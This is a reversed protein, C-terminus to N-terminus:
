VLQGTAILEYKRDQRATVNRVVLIAFVAAAVLVANGALDVADGGPGSMRFAIRSLFAGGLWCVWWLSIVAPAGIARRTALDALRRTPDSGRWADLVSWLPHVLNLFPIFSFGVAKGPTWRPDLSGLSPMNRVVRHVWMSFTVIAGLYAGYFVVVALLDVADVFTFADAPSTHTADLVDWTMLLLLGLVTGGLLAAAWTSRYRASEFPRALPGPPIPPPVNPVWQMGNWIWRGDPSVQGATQM